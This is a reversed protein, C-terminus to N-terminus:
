SSMETGCRLYSCESVCCALSFRSFTVSLWYTLKGLFFVILTSDNEGYKILFLLHQFLLSFLQVGVAFCYGQLQLSYLSSFLLINELCLRYKNDENKNSKLPSNTSRRWRNWVASSSFRSKFYSYTLRKIPFMIKEYNNKNLIIAATQRLGFIYKM